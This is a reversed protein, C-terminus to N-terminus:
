KKNSMLFLRLHNGVVLGKHRNQPGEEFHRAYLGAMTRQTSDYVSSLSLIVRGLTNLSGPRKCNTFTARTVDFTATWIPFCVKWPINLIVIVRV